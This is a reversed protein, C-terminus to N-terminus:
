INYKNTKNSLEVLREIKEGELTLTKLYDNFKDIFEENVDYWKTDLSDLYMNKYNDDDDGDENDGDYSDFKVCDLNFDKMISYVDDGLKKPVHESIKLFKFMMLLKVHVDVNDYTRSHNKSKSSAYGNDYYQIHGGNCVQGNYSGLMVCFYPLVGYKEKVVDLFENYDIGSKYEIFCVDIIGSLVDGESFYKDKILLSKLEYENRFLILTSDGEYM